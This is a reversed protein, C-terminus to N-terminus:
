ESREYVMLIGDTGNYYNKRIACEKFGFKKYLSIATKNDKKVELTINKCSQCQEFLYHLLKTGVGCNRTKPSVYINNIEVKDYIISYNLYGIIENNEKYVVIRLFPNNKFDSVGIVEIDNEKFFSFLTDISGCDIEVYM